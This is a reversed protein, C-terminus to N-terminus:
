AVKRDLRLFAETSHKLMEHIRDDIAILDPLLNSVNAVLLNSQTCRAIARHLIRTEELLMPVTYGQKRRRIGHKAASDMAHSTKEDGGPTPQRVIEDLIEPLHDIREERSLPIAEMEPDKEVADYWDEIIDQKHEEIIRPLRKTHIPAPKKRRSLNARVSNVLQEPETPKTLFDDVQEHIARLASQFAPYGTLIMTVAEPQVRRMASVLTFGDGPEGINLDSILVDFKATTILSLAEAVSSASNVAFGERTLIASWSSRIVPEDDVFLIRNRDAM